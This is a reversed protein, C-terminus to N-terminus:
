FRTIIIGGKKMFGFKGAYIGSSKVKQCVLKYKQDLGRRKMANSIAKFSYEIIEVSQKQTVQGCHLRYYYLIEDLYKIDSVESIRLCLDYDEVRAFSEDYRGIKEFLQKSFLRFHFVMFNLLITNKDYPLRCRNGAGLHKGDKNIITHNTYIMGDPNNATIFNYCLELCDERIIDDADVQCLYDGRAQSYGTNLVRALNGTHESRIISIRSDKQQYAEIIRLSDDTSGDDSIILEFDKFTQNLICELTYSIFKESNYNPIVVSIKPLIM